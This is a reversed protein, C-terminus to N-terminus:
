APPSAASGSATAMGAALIAFWLVVVVAAARKRSTGAITAMGLALLIAGWIGFLDLSSAAAFAPGSAGLPLFFSANWPVLQPIVEPVLEQAQAVAPISLIRGLASPVLGWSAITLTPLFAPAAGAVRFAIWLAAAVLFAYIPPGFVAGVFGTVAGMKRRTTVKEEMQHQTVQAAEAADRDLETRAVREWDIQSVSAATFLLSAVAAAALPALISRREALSALARTPSVFLDIFARLTAM